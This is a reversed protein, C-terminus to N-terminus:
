VRDFFNHNAFHSNGSPFIIFICFYRIIAKYFITEVVKSGAWRLVSTHEGGKSEVQKNVEYEVLDVKM